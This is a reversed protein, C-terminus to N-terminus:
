SDAKNRSIDYGKLYLSRLKDQHIKVWRSAWNIGPWFGAINFAFLRVMAVTPPTGRAALRNIEKILVKQQENNLLSRIEIGDAKSGTKGRWRRSLTSHSIGYKQATQRIAPAEQSKLDEIALEISAM